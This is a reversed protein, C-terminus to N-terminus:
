PRVHLAPSENLDVEKSAPIIHGYQRMPDRLSRQSGCRRQIRRLRTHNARALRRTQRDANFRVPEHWLHLATGRQSEVDATFTKSLVKM